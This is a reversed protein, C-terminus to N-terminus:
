PIADFFYALSVVQDNDKDEPWDQWTSNTFVDFRRVRGATGNAVGDISVDIMKAAWTPIGYIVIANFNRTGNYINGIVFYDNFVHRALNTNPQSYSLVRQVRLDSFARN